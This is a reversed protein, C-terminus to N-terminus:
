VPRYSLRFLVRRSLPNDLTRDGGPGNVNFEAGVAASVAALAMDEPRLWLVPNVGVTM